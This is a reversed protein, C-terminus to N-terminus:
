ISLHPYSGRYLCTTYLIFGHPGRNIPVLPKTSNIELHDQIIFKSIQPPFLFITSSFSIYVCLWRKLNIWQQSSSWGHCFQLIWLSTQLLETMWLGHTVQCVFLSQKLQKYLFLLKLLALVHTYGVEVTACSAYCTHFLECVVEHASIRKIPDRELMKRILDKASESINPWPASDFDLKGQLIQRFIGTETEAFFLCLYICSLYM